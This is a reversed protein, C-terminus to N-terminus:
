IIYNVEGSLIKDGDPQLPSPVIKTSPTDPEVKLHPTTFVQFM